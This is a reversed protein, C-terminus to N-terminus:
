ELSVFTQTLQGDKNDILVKVRDSCKKNIAM